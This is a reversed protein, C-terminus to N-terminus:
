PSERSHMEIRVPTMPRRCCVPDSRWTMAGCRECWWSKWAQILTTPTLDLPEDVLLLAPPGPEVEAAGEEIREPTFGECSDHRFCVLVVAGRGLEPRHRRYACGCTCLAEADM